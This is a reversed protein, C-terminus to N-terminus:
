CQCGTSLCGDFKANKIIQDLTSYFSIIKDHGAYEQPGYANIIRVSLNNVRIQVVLIEMDVDEYILVPDLNEHIGTMLSGTGNGNRAVEFIEYSPIKIM